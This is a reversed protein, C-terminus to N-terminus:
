AGRLPHSRRPGPQVNQLPVDSCDGRYHHSLLVQVSDVRHQFPVLFTTAPLLRPIGPGASSWSHHALPAMQLQRLFRDTGLAVLFLGDALDLPVFPRAL